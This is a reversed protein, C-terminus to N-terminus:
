SITALVAHKVNRVPPVFIVTPQAHFVSGTNTAKLIPEMPAPALASSGFLNLIIMKVASKYRALRTSISAPDVDRVLIDIAGLVTTAICHKALIV